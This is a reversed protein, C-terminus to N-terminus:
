VLVGCFRVNYKPQHKRILTKEMRDMLGLSGGGAEILRFTFISMVSEYVMRSLPTIPGRGKQTAPLYPHTCILREELPIPIKFYDLVKLGLNSPAWEPCDAGILHQQLRLRVAKSKGIYVVRRGFCVCYVFPWRDWDLNELSSRTLPVTGTMERPRCPGMKLWSATVCKWQPATFTQWELPIRKGQPYFREGFRRICKLPDHDFWRPGDGWLRGTAPLGVTQPRGGILFHRIPGSSLVIADNSM